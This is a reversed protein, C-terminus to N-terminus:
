GYNVLKQYLEAASKKLEGNAVTPPEGPPSVFKPCGPAALALKRALSDWTRGPAACLSEYCVFQLRGACGGEQLFLELLASYAHLWQRLWYDITGVEERAVAGGAWAFPRHDGGFEHHVLWGMYQATFPDRKRGEQFNRHQKLLSHAQSLPERFPLLVVAQPFAALIGPLRLINNNNKSLYRSKGYRRLVLAVYQRFKEGVEGSIPHPRLCEKRIYEEGVFTKWFVEELAEPSDFDILIGDGHARAKQAMRRQGPGAIRAWLNPAMVVPMDRYTLSAFENSAHLARLLVTTGARALGAVFVHRGAIAPEIKKGYAALELDFFLEGLFSNGLVLRHFLRALVGYDAM